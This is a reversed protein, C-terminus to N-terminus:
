EFFFRSADNKTAQDNLVDVAFNECPTKYDEGYKM